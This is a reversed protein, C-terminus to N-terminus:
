SGRRQPSHRQLRRISSMRVVTATVRGARQGEPLFLHREPNQGGHWVVDLFLIPGGGPNALGHIEGRTGDVSARAGAPLEQTDDRALSARGKLVQPDGILRFREIRLRGELVQLVGRMSLHDHLPIQAGPGLRFLRCRLSETDLIPYSKWGAGGEERHRTAAERAALCASSGQLMRLLMALDEMRATGHDGHGIAYRM